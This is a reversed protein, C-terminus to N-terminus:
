RRVWEKVVVERQVVPILEEGFDRDDGFVAINLLYHDETGKRKFIQYGTSWKGEDIFDSEEVFEFEENEEERFLDRAQAETIKISDAM